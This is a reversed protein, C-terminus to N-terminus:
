NPGETLGDACVGLVQYYPLGAAIGDPYLVPMPAGPGASLFPDYAPHDDRMLAAEERVGTQYLHYGGEARADPTWSFALDGGARALKLDTIRGPPPCTWEFAGMDFAGGQPRATGDYDEAPAQDPSATGVAPSDPLLHFDRGARDLFRADGEQYAAGRTEEDPDLGRYGDILNHDITYQGAPVDTTVAIQFSQNQSVANNRIVVNDIEPNEMWIGGGWTPGANDAVTNNVIYIDKLPHPANEGWGAVGIGYHNGVAVNNYLRVNELLGGNEAAVAFGFSPIDHVINGYVEINFTHKDWADVYIGLRNLDHVDNGHVVGNSSGDKADIGEGGNTGPGGHHVHNGRVEFGDTIAVTICEQEGDNCALVVENGAILVERSRWVGIGSSVTDHTTNDEIRIHAARNAYIGAGSSNVVRLSDVRVYSRDSLDVLGEWEQLGLGAGDLTATEGPYATFRIWAGPAGDNRPVLRESWTGERLFVTDGEAAAGAVRDLTRWPGAETGPGADDGVPAVFYDTASLLAAAALLFAAALIGGTPPIRRGNSM